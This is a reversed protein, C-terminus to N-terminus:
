MQVWTINSSAAVKARLASEIDSVKFWHCLPVFLPQVDKDYGKNVNTGGHEHRSVKSLLNGTLGKIKKEADGEVKVWDALWQPIRYVTRIQARKLHSPVEKRRERAFHQSPLSIATMTEPQSPSPDAASHPM